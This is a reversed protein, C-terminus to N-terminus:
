PHAPVALAAAGATATVEDLFSLLARNFADPEELHPCHASRELTMLRADTLHRALYCAGEYRTKRDHRGHLLLVPVDISGLADRHDVEHLTAALQVFVPLPWEGAM